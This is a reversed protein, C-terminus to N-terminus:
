SSVWLWPNRVNLSLFLGRSLIAIYTGRMHSLYMYTFRLELCWIFSCTDVLFVIYGNGYGLIGFLYLVECGYSEVIKGDGIGLM